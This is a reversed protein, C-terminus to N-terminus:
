KKLEADIASKLLSYDGSQIQKGNVYFTPTGQVGLNIGENQQKEIKAALDKNDLDSRFQVTDLGIQQAYAVFKDTPDPLQAWEDQKEFLLDHMEWFKGQKGAAEAAMAANMANQHISTLPFHKYELRLTDPFEKLAQEVFPENARCAPCQLDSFEVLTVQASQTAGRTWGDSAITLRQNARESALRNKQVSNYIIFGFLGVVILAVIGLTIWKMSESSSNPSAKMAGSRKQAEREMRRLEKLEKKSPKKDM